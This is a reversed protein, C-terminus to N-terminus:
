AGSRSRPRAVLVPKAMNAKPAESEVATKAMPVTFRKSSSALGPLLREAARALGLETSGLPCASAYLRSLGPHCFDSALSSFFWSSLPLQSYMSAEWSGRPRRRTLSTHTYLTFRSPERLDRRQTCPHRCTGPTSKSWVHHPAIRLVDKRTNDCSAALVPM